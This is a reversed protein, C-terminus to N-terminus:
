SEKEQFDCFRVPVQEMSTTGEPIAAYCQALKPLPLNLREPIL